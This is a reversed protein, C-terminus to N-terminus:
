RVPYEFFDTLATWERNYILQLALTWPQGHHTNWARGFLYYIGDRLRQLRLFDDPLPNLAQVLELPRGNVFAQYPVMTAQSAYAPQTRDSGEYVDGTSSAIWSLLNGLVDAIGSKNADTLANPGPHRLIVHSAAVVLAECARLTDPVNYGRSADLIHAHLNSQISSWRLSLRSVMQECCFELPM